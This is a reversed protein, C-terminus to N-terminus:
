GGRRLRVGSADQDTFEIGAAELVAKIAAVRDFPLAGAEITPSARVVAGTAEYARVVAASVSCFGALRYSSWGLLQRAQQVQAGTM